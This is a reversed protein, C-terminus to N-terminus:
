VRSRWEGATFGQTLENAAEHRLKGPQRCLTIIGPPARSPGCAAPETRTGVCGVGLLKLLFPTRGGPPGCPRGPAACGPPGGLGCCLVTWSLLQQWRELGFPSGAGRAVRSMRQQHSEVATATGSRDVAERWPVSWM